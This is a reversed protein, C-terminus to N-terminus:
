GAPTPGAEALAGLRFLFGGLPAQAMAFPVDLQTANPGSAIDLALAVLLLVGCGALSIGTPVDEHSELLRGASWRGALWLGVALFGFLVVLTVPGSPPLAAEAVGPKVGTLWQYVLLRTERPLLRLLVTGYISVGIFLGDLSALRWVLRPRWGVAAAMLACSLALVFGVHWWSPQGLHWVMTYWNKPHSPLLIRGVGQPFFRGEIVFHASCLGVGALGVVIAILTQRIRQGDKVSSWLDRGRPAM